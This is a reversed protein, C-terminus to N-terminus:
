EGFTTFRVSMSRGPIVRLGTPSWGRLMSSIRRLMTTRNMRSGDHIMMATVAAFVSRASLSAIWSAFSYSGVPSRM